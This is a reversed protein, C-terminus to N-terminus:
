ICRALVNDNEDWVVWDGTDNCIGLLFGRATCMELLADAPNRLPLEFGLQAALFRAETKTM